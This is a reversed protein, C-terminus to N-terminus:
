KWYCWTQGKLEVGIYPCFIHKYPPRHEMKTKFHWMFVELVIQKVGNWTDLAHTLVNKELVFTHIYYTQKILYSDQCFINNQFRGFAQFTLILVTHQVDHHSTIFIKKWSWSIQAHLKDHEYIYVNILLIFITDSLKLALAFKIKLVKSKIPM